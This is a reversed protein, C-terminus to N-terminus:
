NQHHSIDGSNAKRIINGIVDNFSDGAQGLKKLALYNNLDVVIQRYRNNLHKINRM